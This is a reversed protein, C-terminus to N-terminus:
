YCIVYFSIWFKELDHLKNALDILWATYIKKGFQELKRVFNLIIWTLFDFEQPIEEM